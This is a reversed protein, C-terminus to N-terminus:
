NRLVNAMNDLNLAGCRTSGDVSEIDSKRVLRPEINWRVREEELKELGNRIRKDFVTEV